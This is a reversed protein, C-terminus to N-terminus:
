KPIHASLKSLLEMSEKSSKVQNILQQLARQDGKAAAQATSQLQAGNNKQLLAALQKGEPSNLLALLAAKNKSWNEGQSARLFEDVGNPTQGMSIGGEAM